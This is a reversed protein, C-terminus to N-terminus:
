WFFGRGERFIEVVLDTQCGNVFEDIILWTDECLSAMDGLLPSIDTHPFMLKKEFNWELLRRGSVLIKNRLMQGVKKRLLEVSLRRMAEPRM